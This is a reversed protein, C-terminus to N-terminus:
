KHAKFSLIVNWALAIVNAALVESVDMEANSFKNESEQPFNSFTVRIFYELVVITKERVKPQMLKTAGCFLGMERLRRWIEM